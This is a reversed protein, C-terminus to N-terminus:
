FGLNCSFWLVNQWFGCHNSSNTEFCTKINYKRDGKIDRYDKTILIFTEHFYLFLLVWIPILEIPKYIIWGAIFLFPGYGFGMIATSIIPIKKLRINPISYMLASALGISGILLYIPSVVVWLIIGLIAGICILGIAISAVQSKTLIAAPLPRLPKNIKDIKLDHIQNMSNVGAVGLMCFICVLILFIINHSPIWDGTAAVSALYVAVGVILVDEGKILRLASFLVNQRTIPNDMGASM